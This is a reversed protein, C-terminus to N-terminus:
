YWLINQEEKSLGNVKWVSLARQKLVQLAMRPNM